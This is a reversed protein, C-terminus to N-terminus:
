VLRDGEEVVVEVAKTDVMREEAGLCDATRFIWGPRSRRSVPCGSPSLLRRVQRAELQHYRRFRETQSIGGVSSARASSTISHPPARYDPPLKKRGGTTWERVQDRRCACQVRAHADALTRATEKLMALLQRPDVSDAKMVEKTIPDSLIDELTLERQHWTV